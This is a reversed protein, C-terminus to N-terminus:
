QPQPQEILKCTMRTVGTVTAAAGVMAYVGPMLCSDGATCSAFLPLHPYLRYFQQMTMGVVRGVAAGFVM